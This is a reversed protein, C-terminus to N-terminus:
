EDTDDDDRLRTVAPFDVRRFGAVLREGAPFARARFAVLACVAFCFGRPPERDDFGARFFAGVFPVFAALDLRTTIERLLRGGARTASFRRCATITIGTLGVAGGGRGVYSSAAASFANSAACLSNV